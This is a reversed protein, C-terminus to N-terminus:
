DFFWEVVRLPDWCLLFIAAAWLSILLLCSAIRIPLTRKSVFFAICELLLGALAAGPMAVLLLGTIAHPIEVPWGISWPDDLLPRPVHGLMLWAVLWTVFFSGVLALPYCWALLHFWGLCGSKHKASNPSETEVHTVEQPSQYPNPM